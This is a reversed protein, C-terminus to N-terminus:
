MAKCVQGPQVPDPPWCPVKLDALIANLQQGQAQLTSQVDKGNLCIEQFCNKYLQGVEGDKAGLGVPPLALIANEASQQAVVAKAEMQIAPPLDSPPDAKVTPFFANSKLTANQAEPTSLSKIAAITKERDPAGKPIAMGGVVLLYGLGKPGSPAAVM